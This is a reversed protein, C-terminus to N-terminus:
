GTNNLSDKVIKQIYGWVYFHHLFTQKTVLLSAATLQSSTNAAESQEKLPKFPQFM